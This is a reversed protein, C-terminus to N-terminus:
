WDSGGGGSDFGGGSDDSGGGWDSSGGGSDSSTSSSYDDSKSSYSPREVERVVEREVVSPRSIAQGLLVGTLLDNGGRDVVVTQPTVVPTVTTTIPTRTTAYTPAYGQGNLKATPSPQTMRTVNADLYEDREERFSGMDSDIRKQRRRLGIVSATILGVFGLMVIIFVLSFGNSTTTVVQPPPVNVQVVQQTSRVSELARDAISIFAGEYNGHKLYANGSAAILNFDSPRVGTATGFHANTSRHTPDVGICVTNPTTVCDSVAADLARRNPFTDTFIKLDFPYRGTTSQLAYIQSSPIVGARDVVSVNGAIALSPLFLMVAALLFKKM